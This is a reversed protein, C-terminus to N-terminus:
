FELNCFRKQHLISRRCSQYQPFEFLDPYPKREIVETSTKGTQAIQLTKRNVRQFDILRENSVKSGVRVVRANHSGHDMQAFAQVHVDNGLSDFRQLLACEQFSPTTRFRLSEVEALTHRGLIKSGPELPLWPSDGRPNIRGRGM